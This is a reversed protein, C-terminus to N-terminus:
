KKIIYSSTVTTTDNATGTAAVRYVVFAPDFLEILWVAGDTITLTDNPYFVEKSTESNITYFNTGDVSGQLIASGDSTGGVETFVTGIAVTEYTGTIPQVPLYLTEIENLTVATIAVVKNTSQAMTAFSM